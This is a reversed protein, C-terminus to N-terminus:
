EDAPQDGAKTGQASQRQQALHLAMEEISMSEGQIHKSGEDDAIGPRPIRDPPSGEAGGRQWNARTLLDAVHALM